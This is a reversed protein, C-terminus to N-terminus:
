PALRRQQQFMSLGRPIQLGDAFFLVEAGDRASRATHLLHLKQSRMHKYLRRIAPSDDYSVVWPASVKGVAQRVAVHDDHGYANMYLHNGARYYPPDLYLLTRKSRRFDNIVDLADRCSLEIRSRYGAIRKVRSILEPRNFRADLTWAGDQKKGGIMGANLIGSHNTRNLFFTACGLAFNGVKGPQGYVTKQRHWEDPTVPVREIFEILDRSRTLLSHWFAYIAPALDNLHIEAVRDKLLLSLALSAGGAYPEVYRFSELRNTTLLQEFFPAIRWKGGPYRLPSATRM